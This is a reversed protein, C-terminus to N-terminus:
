PAERSKPRSEPQESGMVELTFARVFGDVVKECFQTGRNRLIEDYASQAGLAKRYPRDSTMADFTDAVAIIRALLPIQEGRLGLPYGLGDVREHHLLLGETVKRLAPVGALMEWGLRQHQKMHEWEDATLAAKKKLVAEHIWLKGLDHLVAALRVEHIELESLELYRAIREALACVRLLHASTCPDKAEIADTLGKVHQELREADWEAANAMRPLTEM